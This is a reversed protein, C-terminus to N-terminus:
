MMQGMIPVTDEEEASEENTEPNPDTRAPDEYQFPFADIEEQTVGASVGPIPPIPRVEFPEDDVSTPANYFGQSLAQAYTYADLVAKTIADRCEATVPHSTEIYRKNGNKESVRTPMQVFLGNKGNFVGLGHVVFSDAIKISAAARRAESPDSNIWTIKAVIQPTIRQTNENM